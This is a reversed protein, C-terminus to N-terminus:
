DSDDHLYPYPVIPYPYPYPNPYPYPYPYPHPYPHPYPGVPYYPHRNIFVADQKHIPKKTPTLINVHKPPSKSVASSRIPVHMPSHVPSQRSTLSVKKIHVNPKHFSVADQYTIPEIYQPNYCNTNPPPMSPDLLLVNQQFEGIINGPPNTNFSIYSEGTSENITIGMGFSTSTLWVLCTFHGTADAFGPNNFNYLSIENYWGDIALFLLTMPDTGYGEFYSINEGYLPTGSHKFLNNSTMYYTWNQSFTAITNDWVLPPAQNKARYANVYNTLDIINRDNLAPQNLSMIYISFIKALSPQSLM